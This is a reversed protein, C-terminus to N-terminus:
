ILSYASLQTIFFQSERVPLLFLKDFPVGSVFGLTVDLALFTYLSCKLQRLLLFHKEQITSLPMFCSFSAVLPVLCFLVLFYPRLGRTKQGVESIYCLQSERILASLIFVTNTRCASSCVTQYHIQSEM